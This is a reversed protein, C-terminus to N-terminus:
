QSSTVSSPPINAPSILLPWLRDVQAYTAALSGSNDIVVDAFRRKSDLSEQASERREFDEHTWGRAQARKWRVSEPVEVFVIRECFRNWGAKLMVPADLVIAPAENQQRLYDIQSCLAAAIRPHTLEELYQLEIPGRPPPAFVIAALAPRHIEGDPNFIKDGWRQRATDKVAKLKLVEHGTRDADLLVAGKKVLYNAILSKGSAIGGLLGIVNM